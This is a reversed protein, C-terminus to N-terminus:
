HLLTLAASFASEAEPLATLMSQPTVGATEWLFPNDPLLPEIQKPEFSDRQCAVLSLHILAAERQFADAQEPHIHYALVSCLMEPLKWCRALAAGLMAYDFGFLDQQVEHLPLSRHRAELMAKRALEPIRDYMVLLGIRHLLGALFLSENCGEGKREAGLRRALVACRLSRRWFSYIDELEPPIQEFRQVVETALVLDNIQRMGVYNVAEIISDVKNPLAYFASNVLKLIRASLAPDHEIVEALMALTCDPDELLHSLRAYIEPPSALRVDGQLLDDISIKVKAYRIFTM